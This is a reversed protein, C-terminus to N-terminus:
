IATAKLAAIKREMLAIKKLKRNEIGVFFHEIENEFDAWTKDGARGHPEDHIYKEFATRLADRNAEFGARSLHLFGKPKLEWGDTRIFWDDPADIEEPVPSGIACEPVQVTM